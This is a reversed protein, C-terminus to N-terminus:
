KSLACLISIFTCPEDLKVPEGMITYLADNFKIKMIKTPFFGNRNRIVFYISEDFNTIGAQIVLPNYPNVRDKGAWTSLLVTDEVTTGGFGDDTGAELVFHIKHVMRGPDYSGTKKEYPKIM